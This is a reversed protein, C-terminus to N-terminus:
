FETPNWITAAIYREQNEHENFYYVAVVQGDARQATRPYGLDWNGGDARLLIEEGWNKGDDRSIKARIGYPAARHGYTLLLRGDQLRILHGPNGAHTEVPKNLFLWNKGNDQSTYSEIWYSSEEGVTAKRRIMTLFGESSTRVTSPMIAYGGRPPPQSGIWSWFEWTKAGDQTRVCFPWGEAGDDKAAAMFAYMDHKGNIIYDTRALIAKRGFDPLKYPGQWTKCRDHSVFFRSFRVMMAFDPHTFDIEGPCDTAEPEKGEADLFSPTEITWTRGGDLSRAFRMVSPKDPDIAHGEKIKFYGLTFGVVIEDGWSWIGHNAPWGGFRGPEKCVIVHKYDPQKQCGVLSLAIVVLIAWKKQM